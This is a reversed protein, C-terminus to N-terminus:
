KVYSPHAMRWGQHFSIKAMIGSVSFFGTAAAVTVGVLGAM